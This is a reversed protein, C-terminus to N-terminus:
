YQIGLNLTFVNRDYGNAGINSDRNEFTYKAGGYLSRNIKYKLGLSATLRDDERKSGEYETTGYRLSTMALLNRRVEYDAGVSANTM